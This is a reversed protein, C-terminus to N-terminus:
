PPLSAVRRRRSLRREDQNAAVPVPPHHQRSVGGGVSRAQADAHGDGLHLDQRGAEDHLVGVRCAVGLREVPERGPEESVSGDDSGIRRVPDDDVRSASIVEMAAFTRHQVAEDAPKGHGPNRSPARDGVCPASRVSQGAIGRLDCRVSVACGYHLRQRERRQADGRRGDGGQPRETEIHDAVKERLRPRREGQAEAGFDAAADILGEALGGLRNLRDPRDIEDFHAAGEGLGDGCGFGYGPIDGLEDALEALTELGAAQASAPEVEDAV